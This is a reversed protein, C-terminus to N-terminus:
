PFIKDCSEVFGVTTILNMQRSHLCSILRNVLCMGAPVIAPTELYRLRELFLHSESESPRPLPRPLIEVHKSQGSFDPFHFNILYTTVYEFFTSHCM